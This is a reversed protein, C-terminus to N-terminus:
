MKKFDPDVIKQMFEPNEVEVQVVQRNSKFKLPVNVKKRIYLFLTDNKAQYLFPELGDFIFDKTSDAIFGVSPWNSIVSKQKDGTFGWHESKIYIKSTGNDSVLTIQQYIPKELGGFLSDVIFILAGLAFLITALVILIKKM